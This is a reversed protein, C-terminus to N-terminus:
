DSIQRREGSVQVLRMDAIQWGREASYTLTDFYTGLFLWLHGDARAHWAQLYSSMRASGGSGDASPLRLETILQTGILHQTASYEALADSVIDAWADPGTVDPVGAAGLSADPTFIEHYIATGRAVEDASGTGILDTAVAYQHRLEQIRLRARWAADSQDNTHM